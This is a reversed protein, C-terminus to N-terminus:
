RSGAIKVNGERLASGTASDHVNIFAAVAILALLQAAIIFLAPKNESGIKINMEPEQAPTALRGVRHGASHPM